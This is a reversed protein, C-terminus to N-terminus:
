NMFIKMVVKIYSKIKRLPKTIKWSTSNLLGALMQQSMQESNKLNDIELKKNELQEKQVQYDQQLNSIIIKQKNEHEKLQAIIVEQAKIVEYKVQNHEKLDNIQKNMHNEKDKLQEIIVEQAKIVEYKVQNHEKLDNITQNMVEIKKNNSENSELLEIFQRHVLDTYSNIANYVNLADYEVMDFKMSISNYDVLKMDINIYPELVIFVLKDKFRFGNHEVHITHDNNISFNNIAIYKNKPFEVYVYKTDVPIDIIELVYTNGFTNILENTYSNNTNFSMTDSYCIKVVKRECIPPKISFDILNDSKNVKCEGIFQYVSSYPNERIINFLINPEYKSEQETHGLPLIVYELNTLRLSSKNIMDIINNYAFLHIHTNDLLGLDTYKFNNGHINVIVDGHAVNPISFLVSGDDKIFDACANFVSQPERLHELVDTFIIHDYKNGKYYEQWEMIEIDSCLGDSAYKMAKNFDEKNIEVIHVDCEMKEKLYKTFRGNAPGFELIISHKKILKLIKAFSTGEDLVLDIDYKSM